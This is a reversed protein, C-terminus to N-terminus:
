NVQVTATDVVVGSSALRIELTFTSSDGPNNSFAWSRSSALSIFTGTASGSATNVGGTHTLRAEYLGASSTPTVWTEIYTGFGSVLSGDSGLAISDGIVGGVGDDFTVLAYTTSLTVVSNRFLCRATGNDNVWIEQIHRATGADNVWLERIQRATGADNVWTEATM